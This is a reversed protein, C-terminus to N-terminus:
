SAAAIRGKFQKIAQASVEGFSGLQLLADGSGNLRVSQLEASLEVPTAQNGDGAVYVQYSGAPLGLAQPDLRYSNSGVSRSGLAIRQESGDSGVLVLETKASNSGLTFSLQASSKDLTLQSVQAQVTSGVQAGLSLMQLSSLMSASSSGQTAIKQLTEMQSLQTLQNVFQSPDSPSLPDQNKIQAVLLTTFMSSVSSGNAAIADSVGTNATGSSTNNVTATSM